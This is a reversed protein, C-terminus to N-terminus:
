VINRFHINKLWDWHFRASAQPKSATTYSHNQDNVLSIELLDNNNQDAYVANVQTNTDGNLRFNKQLSYTSIYTETIPGFPKGEKLSTEFDNM